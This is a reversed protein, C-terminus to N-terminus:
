KWGMLTGCGIAAEAVSMKPISSDQALTDVCIALDVAPLKALNVNGSKQVISKISQFKLAMDASTATKNQYTSNRWEQLTASHLNGGEYWKDSGAFASSSLFIGVTLIIHRM